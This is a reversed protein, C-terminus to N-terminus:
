SRERHQLTPFSDKPIGIGAPIQPQPLFFWGQCFPSPDRRSDVKPDLLLGQFQIWGLLDQGMREGLLHLPFPVRSLGWNWIGRQIFGM